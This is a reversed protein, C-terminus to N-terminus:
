QKFAEWPKRERPRYENIHRRDEFVLKCRQEAIKPANPPDWIVKRNKSEKTAGILLTFLQLGPGFCGLPRYQKNNRGKIIIEYIHKYGHLIDFYPRRWEKTIMMLDLRARIKEESDADLDAIWDEFDDHGNSKIFVKFTWIKM